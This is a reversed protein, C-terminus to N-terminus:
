EARIAEKEEETLDNRIHFTARIEEPNKGARLV